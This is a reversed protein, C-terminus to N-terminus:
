SKKQILLDSHTNSIFRVSSDKRRKHLTSSDTNSSRLLKLFPLTRIQIVIIEILLELLIFRMPSYMTSLVLLKPLPAVPSTNIPVKNAIYASIQTWLSIHCDLDDIQRCNVVLHGLIKQFHLFTSEYFHRVRIHKLSQLDNLVLVITIKDRLMAITACQLVVNFSFSM